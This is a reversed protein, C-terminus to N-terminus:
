ALRSYLLTGCYFSRYQSRHWIGGAL